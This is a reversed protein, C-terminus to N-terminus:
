YEGAAFFEGKYFNFGGAVNISRYGLRTLDRCALMSQSGRSCYFVLPVEKSLEGTRESLEEFPINESGKIHGERYFEPTRLDILQMSIDQRIYDDLQRLSITPYTMDKM